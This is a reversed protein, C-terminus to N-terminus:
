DKRRRALQYTELGYWVRRIEYTALQFVTGLPALNDALAKFHRVGFNVEEDTLSDGKVYKEYIAKPDAVINDGKHLAIIGCNNVLTLLQKAFLFPGKMYPREEYWKDM